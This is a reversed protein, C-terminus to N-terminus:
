KSGSVQSAKARRTIFVAALLSLCLVGLVTMIGIAYGPVDNDDSDRNECVAAELTANNDTLFGRMFTIQYNQTNIIDRLVAAVQVDSFALCLFSPM